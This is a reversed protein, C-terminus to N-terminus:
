RWRWRHDLVPDPDAAGSGSRPWRLAAGGQFLATNLAVFAREKFSALSGLRGAAGSELATELGEAEVGALDLRSLEPSFRGNVVVLRPLGPYLLNELETESVRSEGDPIIRFPVQGLRAVSPHLAM